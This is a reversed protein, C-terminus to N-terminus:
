MMNLSQKYVPWSRKTDDLRMDREEMLDLGEQKFGGRRACQM